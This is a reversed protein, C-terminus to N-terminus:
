LFFLSACCLTFLELMYRILTGSLFFHSQLLITITLYFYSRIKQFQYFIVTRVHHFHPSDWPFLYFWGRCILTFSCFVLSFIKFAVLSSCCIAIFLIKEPGVVSKGAAVVSALPCQFATKVISLSFPQWGSFLIDRLVTKRSHCCFLSMKLGFARTRASVCM